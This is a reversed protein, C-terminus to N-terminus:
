GDGEPPDVIVPTNVTRCEACRIRVKYNMYVPDMRAALLGGCKVCVYDDSGNGKFVPRGPSEQIATGGDPPVEGPRIERMPHQTM